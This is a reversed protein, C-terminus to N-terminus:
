TMNCIKFVDGELNPVYQVTMYPGEQNKNEIGESPATIYLKSAKFTPPRVHLPTTRTTVRAQSRSTLKTWLTFGAKFIDTGTALTSRLLLIIKRDYM